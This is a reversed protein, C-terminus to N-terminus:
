QEDPTENQPSRAAELEAIELPTMERDTGNDNIIWKNM